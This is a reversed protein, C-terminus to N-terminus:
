PDHTRIGGPAGIELPRDEHGSTEFLDGLFDNPQRPMLSQCEDLQQEVQISRVGVRTDFARPVLLDTRADFGDIFAPSYSDGVLLDPLFHRAAKRGSPRETGRAPSIRAPPRRRSSHSRVPLAPGAIRPRPRHVCRRSRGFGQLEADVVSHGPQIVVKGAVAAQQEPTAARQQAKEINAQIRKFEPREQAWKYRAPIPIEDFRPFPRGGPRGGPEQDPRSAPPDKLQRDYTIEVLGLRIWNDVMIPLNAVERPKRTERDGMAMLHNLLVIYGALPFPDQKLNLRGQVIEKDSPPALAGCLMGAEEASLQKIIEVFAPHALSATRKNMASALLHLYMERLADDEHGFALGQMIPGALAPRPETVDEPPIDALKAKLDPQFRSEFYGRAKDVGYNLAAFPLLAVNITKAITHAAKGLEAGAARANPDKGAAKILDTTAAIAGPLIPIPMASDSDPSDTSDKDTV